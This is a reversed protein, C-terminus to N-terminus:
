PTRRHPLTEQLSDHGRRRIDESEPKCSARPISAESGKVVNEFGPVLGEATSPAQEAAIRTFNVSNAGQLRLRSIRWGTRKREPVPGAIGGDEPPTIEEDRAGSKM